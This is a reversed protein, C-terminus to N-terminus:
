SGNRSTWPYTDSFKMAARIPLDDRRDMVGATSISTGSKHKAQGQPVGADERNAGKDGEEKKVM